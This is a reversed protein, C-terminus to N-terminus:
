HLVRDIEGSKIKRTYTAIIICMAEYVLENDFPTVTRTAIIRIADELFRNGFQELLMNEVELKEEGSLLNDLDFM